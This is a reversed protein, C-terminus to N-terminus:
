RFDITYSQGNAACDQAVAQWWARTVLFTSGKIDDTTEVTDTGLRLDRQAMVLGQERLDEDSSGRWMLLRQENIWHVWVNVIKDDYLYGIVCFENAVDNRNEAVLLQKLAPEPPGYYENDSPAFRQSPKEDLESPFTEGRCTSIGIMVVAALLAITSRM